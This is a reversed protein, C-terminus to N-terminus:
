AGIDELGKPSAGGLYSCNTVPQVFDWLLGEHPNDASAQASLFHWVPPLIGAAERTADARFAM